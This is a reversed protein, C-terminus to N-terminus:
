LKELLKKIQLFEHAAIDGSSMKEDPERHCEASIFGKYGATKLKRLIPLYDIAGDPDDLLLRINNSDKGSVQKVQVNFIRDGFADIAEPGYRPDCRYINGPDYNLGVNARNIYRLAKLTGEVTKIININNELLVNREYPAAYDACKAAWACFRRYDEETPERTDGLYKPNLRIHRCGLIEAIRVYRKFMECMERCGANDLAEFDGAYTALTVIKLGLGDCLGKFEVVTQDDVDAPLHRSIGFVELGKYGIRAAEEAMRFLEKDSMIKSCLCLPFM